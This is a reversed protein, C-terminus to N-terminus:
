AAAPPRTGCRCALQKRTVFSLAQSSVISDIARLLLEEAPLLEEDRARGEDIM